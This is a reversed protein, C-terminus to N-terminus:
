PFSGEGDDTGSTVRCANVANSNLYPRHGIRGDRSFVSSSSRSAASSFLISANSSCASCFYFTVMWGGGITRVGAVIALESTEGEGGRMPDITVFVFYPFQTLVAPRNLLWRTIAPASFVPAIQPKILGLTEVEFINKDMMNRQVDVGAASKWQPLLVEMHSCAAARGQDQCRTCAQHVMELQFLNEGTTPNKAMAMKNYYNEGQGPTSIAFLVTNYVGLMSMLNKQINSGRMAAAEELVM